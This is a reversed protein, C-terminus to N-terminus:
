KILFYYNANKINGVHKFHKAVEWTASSRISIMLGSKDKTKKSHKLDDELTAGKLWLLSKHSRLWKVIKEWEKVTVKIKGHM